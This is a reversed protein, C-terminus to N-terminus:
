LRTRGEGTRLDIHCSTCETASWLARRNARAGAPPAIHREVSEGQSESRWAAIWHGSAMSVTASPHMHNVVTCKVWPDSQDGGEYLAATLVPGRVPVQAMQRLDGHFNSGGALHLMLDASAVVFLLAIVPWLVWGTRSADRGAIRRRAVGAWLNRPAEVPALQRSLERELWDRNM